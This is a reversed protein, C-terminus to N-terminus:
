LLAIAIGLTAGLTIFPLAPLPHRSKMLLVHNCLLGAVMGGICYYASRPDLSYLSATLLMPLIIDGGGLILFGGGPRVASLYAKFDRFKEPIIFAFSAQHRIMEHALLIMHRTIFVAIFDYVSLIALMVLAMHWQFQLGFVPGIGAAALLIILDHVWIQPLLALGAIFFLAVILSLSTPFVLEFIKLLGIFLAAGFLVRYLVKGRYLQFLILMFVTVSFFLILFQVMTLPASEATPFAMALLQDAVVLGLSQALIFLFATHFFLRLRM